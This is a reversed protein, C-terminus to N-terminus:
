KAVKLEYQELADLLKSAEDRTLTDRLPAWHLDGAEDRADPTLAIMTDEDVNRFRALKAYLHATAIHEADRLTGVLVNLKKAQAQTLPKDRTTTAITNGAIAPAEGPVPVADGFPIEDVPTPIPAASRATRTAQKTEAAELGQQLTVGNGSALQRMPTYALRPQAEAGMLEGISVDVDIVPVAFRRTQGEKVDVRQELRLRAPIMVGQATWKNLLAIAGPIENAANWGTSQVLWSGIGKLDPLLVPFRLHPKCDREDGCLCPGDSLIETVGDCRRQVGGRTWLEYYVTPETEPLLMIPLEATDTYLEFEGDRGQWEQVTGGWLEAAAQLRVRDKSTLRWKDLKRPHGNATDGARIRGAEVMRRQLDIIPM